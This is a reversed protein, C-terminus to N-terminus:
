STGASPRHHILQRQEQAGHGPSAHEGEEGGGQARTANAHEKAAAMAQDVARRSEKAVHNEITVQKKEISLAAFSSLDM